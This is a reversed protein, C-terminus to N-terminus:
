ASLDPVIFPKRYQRHSLANAEDAFDGTFQQKEVDLELWPGATAPTAELDVANLKLHEACREFADSALPHDKTAARIKDPDSLAGLRHSVNAAHFCIASLHGEVAECRLSESSQSQVASVFNALHDTLMQGSSQESKFERIQKGSKDFVTAGGAEALCYGGECDIVLGGGAGRYKGSTGDQRSGLNRVECILPAPEYDFIAIQTNATEAGDPKGFRGGISMVRRPARDQGLAWRALDITHPGNNGIEGNGTEWFWHWQYHLHPRMVGHLKAPGLWLNYDLDRPVRTPSSITGIGPRPRYVLAHVSRLPGILGAHIAQFVEPLVQSSRSQTGVQVIRKNQRAAAVAQRGEWISHCFPKEVYVDKGAQCAWVTALAHWHNPTAVLVADVNKDDFVRRLDAYATVTQKDKKLLEVGNALVNEDVDCLAVIRAEPVGRLADILQRGRGGVSGPIDIGGLGIIALRVESNADAAAARRRWPSAGIGCLLGGAATTKLVDRRSIRKM